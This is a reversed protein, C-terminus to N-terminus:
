SVHASTIRHDASIRVAIARSITRIRKQPTLMRFTLLYRGPRLARGNVKGNWSFHNKGHRAAGLPVRGIAQIKPETRGLLKHTGVVRAVLIGIKANALSGTVAPSLTAKQVSGLLQSACTANCTVAAASPQAVAALSVNGWIEQYRKIQPSPAAGLDIAENMIMQVGPDLDFVLLDRQDLGGAVLSRVFALSLGDPSWAPMTETVPHAATSGINISSPAADPTTQSPYLMTSIGTASAGAQVFAAYGDSARLAAHSAQSLDLPNGPGGNVLFRLEARDTGGTQTDYLLQDFAMLREIGFRLEVAHPIDLIESPSEDADPATSVVNGLGDGVFVAGNQRGARVILDTLGSRPNHPRLGFALQLLSGTPGDLSPGAGGDVPTGDSFPPSITQGTNRDVMVVKRNGPPIVNGNILPRVQTRMFLLFRGDPSLTPHLEDDATNVSAPLAIAQGTGLDVLGIDFGKAGGVYRDYAAVLSTAGSARAAPAMTMVLLAAVFAVREVGLRSM